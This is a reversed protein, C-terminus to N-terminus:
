SPTAGCDRSRPRTRGGSRGPWTTTPRGAPGRRALGIRAGLHPDSKSASFSRRRSGSPRSPRSPSPCRNESPRPPSGTQGDCELGPAASEVELAISRARGGDARPSSPDARDLRSRVTNRPRPRRDACVPSVTRTMKVWGTRTSGPM